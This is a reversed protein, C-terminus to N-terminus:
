DHSRRRAGVDTELSEVLVQIVRVAMSIEIVSGGRDFASLVTATRCCSGGLGRGTVANGLLGNFTCRVHRVSEWRTEERKFVRASVGRLCSVVSVARFLEPTAGAEPRSFPYLLITGHFGGFAIDAGLLWIVSSHDGYIKPKNPSSTQSAPARVTSDLM